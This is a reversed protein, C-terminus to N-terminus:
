EGIIEGPTLSPSLYDQPDTSLLQVIRYKGNDLSDVLMMQNNSTVVQRIQFLSQDTPFIDHDSLPTYLTM